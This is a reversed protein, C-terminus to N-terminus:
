SCASMAWRVASKCCASVCDAFQRELGQRRLQGRQLGFGGYGILQSAALRIHHLRIPRAQRLHMRLQLAPEIPDALDRLLLCRDARLEILQALAFCRQM